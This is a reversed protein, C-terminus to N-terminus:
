PRSADLWAQVEAADPRRSQREWSERVQALVSARDAVFGELLARVEEAHLGPQVRALNDPHLLQRLSSMKGDPGITIVYNTWGEPQRPYDFVRSGDPQTTITVPDGFQQRM